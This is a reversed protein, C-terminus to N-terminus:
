ARPHAQEFVARLRATSVHTYIQTTAPSAHGLLEQVDRLDAGHDLLHTAASHRLAHPSIDPVEARAAAAHVADRIQRVGWRGGRAGLFLAAGSEKSVLHSRMSLWLRLARAAPEGFIVKRQKNGKGVVVATRSELDVDDIDLGSLEQVRVGTAYLMELAAADRSRLAKARVAASKNTDNSETTLLRIAQREKLVKPLHQSRRPSRIRLTPDIQVVGADRAWRFFTRLVTIRRALTARSKGQEAAQALWSRVDDVDIDEVSKHGRQAAHRMASRLDTDYARLTHPSREKGRHHKLFGLFDAVIEQTRGDLSKEATGRSSSDSTPETVVERHVAPGGM